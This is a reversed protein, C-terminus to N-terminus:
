SGEGGPGHRLLVRQWRQQVADALEPPDIARAYQGLAALDTALADLDHTSMTLMDMGELDGHTSLDGLPDAKLRLSAGHGPALAFRATFRVPSDPTILSTPDHEPISYTGAVDDSVVEGEIRSTRFVRVGDAHRDHGILYWGGESNVLSWPEIERQRAREDKLGRYDFRLMRRQALAQWISPIWEEGARPRPQWSIAETVRPVETDPDDLVTRLKRLGSTAAPELSAQSWARAALGLLAWQQATLTIDPLRYDQERILYGLVEGEDTAVTDIPIGLSRLHDKDREFMREFAVSSADPDYGAVVRRITERPVPQTAALLCLVLNLLRETRDKRGAGSM